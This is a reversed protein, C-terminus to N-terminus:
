FHNQIKTGSKLSIERLLYVPGLHSPANQPTVDPDIKNAQTGYFPRGSKFSNFLNFFVTCYDIYMASGVYINLLICFAIQVFHM